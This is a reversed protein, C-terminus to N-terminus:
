LTLLVMVEQTGFLEMNIFLYIFHWFAFCNILLLCMLKGGGGLKSGKGDLGDGNGEKGM